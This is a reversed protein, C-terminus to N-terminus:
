TVDHLLGSTKSPDLELWAMYSSRTRKPSRHGYRHAVDDVPADPGVAGPQDFAAPGVLDQGGLAPLTRVPRQQQAPPSLGSSAQGAPPVTAEGSQAPITMTPLLSAISFGAGDPSPCRRRGSSRVIIPSASRRVRSSCRRVSASTARAALTDM